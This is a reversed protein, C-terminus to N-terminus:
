NHTLLGTDLATVGVGGTFGRVFLTYIKGSAITVNHASTLITPTGSIKVDFSYTGANMSVFDTSNTFAEETFLTISGEVVLDVPPANPSLQVFRLKATGAAPPALNDVLLMSSFRAISDMGFITYYFGATVPVVARQVTDRSGSRMISLTRLGTTFPIYGTANPYTVNSDVRVSDVYLDVSPADPSTQVFM